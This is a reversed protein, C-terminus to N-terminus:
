VKMPYCLRIFFSPINTRLLRAYKDHAIELVQREETTWGEKKSEEDLKRLREIFIQRTKWERYPLLCLIAFVQVCGVFIQAHLFPKSLSLDRLKLAVVESCLGASGVCLSFFTWGSPIMAQPVSDALLSGNLCNAVGSTLGSLVSFAILSGYTECNIWLAFVLVVTFCSVSVSMNVRGTYDSTLGIMPRGIAQCANFIATVHSGQTETLGISLAMSSMSYMLVIYALVMLAYWVCICDVQYQKAVSWDLILTFRSRIEHWTKLRPKPVREKIFICAICNAIFVVIGVVRMAWRHDGTQEIMRQAALSFIAGGLGAGGAIIGQSLGVKSKKKKGSRDMNAGKGEDTSFWTPVITFPPNVIFCFGLGVMTGYSLYLQWVKTAFSSAIYGGTQLLIGICMVPRFGIISSLVIPITAAAQAFYLVLSGIMAYDVTTAGPFYDATIFYALFVGFCSSCGWTAVMILSQLCTIVWSYPVDPPSIANAELEFKSAEETTEATKLNTAQIVIDLDPYEGTRTKKVPNSEIEQIRSFVSRHSAVAASEYLDLDKSDRLQQVANSNEFIKENESSISELESLYGESPM